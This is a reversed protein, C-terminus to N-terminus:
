GTATTWCTACADMIAADSLFSAIFKGSGDPEDGGSFGGPPDCWRRAASLTSSRPARVSPRRPSTACLSLRLRAARVGSRVRPTTSATPARSFRSLPWRIQAKIAPKSVSRETFCVQTLARRVCRGKDSVRARAQGRPANHGRRADRSEGDVTFVMASTYGVAVCGSTRM